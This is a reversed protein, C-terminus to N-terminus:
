IKGSIYEMIADAVNVGTCDFINRFHANSNVECLIPEDNEGFLIDVGAFDLGLLKTVELAMKKHAEDPEYPLMSGGNSVNARFDNENHRIMSTVVRDGVTHIRVDRGRSTRIFEQAICERGAIAPLINIAEDRSHILYVQAGFSGYCEKLVYPFGLSEEIIDMFDYDTFGVAPFTMPIHYTKPMRIKGSLREFTMAKNDCCAIADSSNFVKLGMNEFCRALTTDKDWFLVFDCPPFDPCVNMSDPMALYEANTKVTLNINLKYAAKSLWEYIETYKSAHLFANVILIGNKM